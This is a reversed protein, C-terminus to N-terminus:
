PCGLEDSGDECDPAGDCKWQEPIEEGSMCMFVPCGAEDSMDRCEPDGECCDLWGDCKYDLYIATGNACMFVNDCGLEDSGDSCDAELDCKYSDPVQEGSACVFPPQGYCAIAVQNNAAAPPDPCALVAALFVDFCALQADDDCGAATFCGAYTKQPGAACDLHAKADPHEGLVTCVCETLDPPTGYEVLCAAQDAFDGAAVLCKCQADAVIAAEAENTKCQEYLASDIPAGTTGDTDSTGGTLDPGTTATDTPDTTGGPDSATSTTQAQSTSGNTDVGSSDGCAAAVLTSLLALHIPRQHPRM